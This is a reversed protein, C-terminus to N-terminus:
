LSRRKGGSNNSSDGANVQPVHVEILLSLFSQLMGVGGQNAQNSYSRTCSKSLRSGQANMRELLNEASLM